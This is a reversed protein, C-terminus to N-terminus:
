THWRRVHCRAKGLALSGFSFFLSRSYSAVTIRIVWSGFHRVVYVPRPHQKTPMFTSPTTKFDHVNPFSGSLITKGQNVYLQKLISHSHGAWAWPPFFWAGDKLPFMQKWMLKNQESAMRDEALLIHMWSPPSMTKNVTTHGSYM